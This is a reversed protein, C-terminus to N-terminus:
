SNECFSEMVSTQNSELYAERSLSFLFIKRFNKPLILLSKFCRDFIEFFKPRKRRNTWNVDSRVCFLWGTIFAAAFYMSIFCTVEKSLNIQINSNLVQYSCKFLLSMFSLRISVSTFSSIHIHINDHSVLIFIQYLETQVFMKNLIFELVKFLMSFCILDYSVSFSINWVSVSVFSQPVESAAM